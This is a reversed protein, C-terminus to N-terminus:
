ADSFRARDWTDDILEDLVDLSESSFDLEKDSWFEVAEQAEQKFREPGMKNKM